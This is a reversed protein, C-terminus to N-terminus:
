CYNKEVYVKYYLNFKQKQNKKNSPPIYGGGKKQSINKEVNLDMNFTAPLYFKVWCGCILVCISTPPYIGGERKKQAIIKKLMYRITCTSNRSRIRKTPPPYIGGRGKKQAIIKKLMYRITCTSNRSRIRKTPPPYIVGERKQSINKEL